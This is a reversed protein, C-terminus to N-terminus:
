VLKNTVSWAAIAVKGTSGIKTEIKNKHNRLTSQKIRLEACIQADMQGLAVRKAVQAARKSIGGPFKCLLGEAPCTDRQDCKIFEPTGLNGCRMVDCKHDFSSYLCDFTKHVRDYETKIGLKDLGKQKDKDLNIEEKLLNYFLTPLEEIPLTVGNTLEYRVDGRKFYEFSPTFLAEPIMETCLSM